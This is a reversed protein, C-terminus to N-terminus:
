PAAAAVIATHPFAAIGGAAIAVAYPIGNERDLLRSLFTPAGALKPLRRAVSMVLALAGGALTMYLMFAPLGALGLWVCSAAIMKADGGGFAGIQFLVFVVVLAGVGVLAHAGIASWGLGAFLAAPLFLAALAISIWNPIEMSRIDSAAALALLAPFILLAAETM